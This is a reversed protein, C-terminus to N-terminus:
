HNRQEEAGRIHFSLLQVVYASLHVMIIHRM